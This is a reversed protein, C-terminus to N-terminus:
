SNGGGPSKDLDEMTQVIHQYSEGLDVVDIGKEKAVQEMIESKSYKKLMPSKNLDMVKLICDNTLKNLVSDEIEIIESVQFLMKQFEELLEVQEETTM